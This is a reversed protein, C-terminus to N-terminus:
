RGRRGIQEEIARLGDRFAPRTVSWRQADTESALADAHAATAVAQRLTSLLRRTFAPEQDELRRGLAIAASVLEDDDYVGAVLGAALAASANWVEGFLCALMAQQQGVARTLMWAHGGGPHIRLQAFRSDFLAHQGALRVDCALALNFGAGVAAGNVAAITALPSHLFRLFGDYVETVQGFEGDAAARLSSLEAGACFSRGAGTVVLCQTVGDSELVDLASGIAAVLPVSLANRQGPVNLVLLAVGGYRTVVVPDGPVPDSPVPDSPVPVSPVPVSPM